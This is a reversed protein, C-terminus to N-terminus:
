RQKHTTAWFSYSPTVKGAYKIMPEPSTRLVWLHGLKTDIILISKDDLSQAQFRGESSSKISLNFEELMQKDKQSWKDKAESVVAVGLSSCVVLSIIIFLLFRKKM